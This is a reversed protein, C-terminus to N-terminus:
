RGDLRITIKHVTSDSAFPLRWVTQNSNATVVLLIQSSTLSAFDLRFHGQADTETTYTGMEVTAGSVPLFLGSDPEVERYLVEGLISYVRPWQGLIPLRHLFLSPVLVAAFLLLSLLWFLFPLGNRLRRYTSHRYYRFRLRLIKIGLHFESMSEAKHGEGDAGRDNKM